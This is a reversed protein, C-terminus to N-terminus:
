GGGALARSISLASRRVAPGFFAVDHRGGKVEKYEHAIGAEDLVRHLFATGPYCGLHDATGVDVYLKLGSQKIRAANERALFAPNNKTWYGDGDVPKGFIDEQFRLPRSPMYKDPPVDKFTLGAEVGPANAAAARFLEPHKFALRLAGLGGMSAGTVALGERGQTVNLTKRLEPLLEGLLFNEWKAKGDRRNVYLSRGCSPTVVVMPAIEGQAMLRDLLASTRASLRASSGGGHLCLLLPLPKGKASYAKPLLVSYEVAKGVEKSDLKRFSFDGAFTLKPAPPEPKDGPQARVDAATLLGLALMVSLSSTRVV